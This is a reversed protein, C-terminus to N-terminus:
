GSKGRRVDQVNQGCIKPRRVLVTELTTHSAPNSILIRAVTLLFSVQVVFKKGMSKQTINRLEKSLSHTDTFACSGLLVCSM